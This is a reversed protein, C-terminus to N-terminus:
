SAGHTGTPPAAEADREFQALREAIVPDDMEIEAKLMNLRPWSKNLFREAVWRRSEDVEADWVLCEALAVLAKIECLREAHQLAPSINEMKVLDRSLMKVMRLLDASKVESISARANVKVLRLLLAIVASSSLQKARYLKKRLPDNARLTQVRLGLATNIFTTPRRIVDKLTDKLCMLAQIQSTGEYLPLILSERVWWEARYETTFGYGGHIQLGTRAMEVSKEGVYWKILPTWRRVRKRAKVTRQEIEGRQGDTLEKAKADKLQREGQYMISQNFGAQYCLSRVARVEVEMDLLKEAILEHQAIPKGWTKRQAAFESALRYVAELLGLGQFGVAIRADNMLVLMHQFGKGEEGLLVADAGDFALECTASGHLAVKEELKTVKFNDRGDVQRLCLYLNLNQLGTVGKERMALVLAVQGCGNSIFRKTGYLKYRGDAQKEGYSRLAALDSGADPETLAMSGSWEGAAIRPVVQQKVEESGFKEVIHGIGSYWVVNLHTSPCARSIMESGCAEIIFPTGIGGYKPGIGMGASGFELLARMNETLTPPFKVQGDVLTLPEKEVQPANPALRSGCIEGLTELVTVAMDRYEDPTKCGTVEREEDTLGAFLAEFDIRKTLQFQIDANDLYFNDKKM